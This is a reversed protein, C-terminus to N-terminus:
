LARRENLFPPLIIYFFAAIAIVILCLDFLVLLEFHQTVNHFWLAGPKAAAPATAIQQGSAVSYLIGSYYPPVGAFFWFSCRRLIYHRHKDTIFVKHGQIWLIIVDSSVPKL